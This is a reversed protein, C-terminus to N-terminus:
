TFDSVKCLLCGDEAVLRINKAKEKEMRKQMRRREARSLGDSSQKVAIQTHLMPEVMFDQGPEQAQEFKRCQQMDLEGMRREVVARVEESVDGIVGEHIPRLIAMLVAQNAARLRDCSFQALYTHTIQEAHHGLAQSVLSVEVGNHYATTAWTHRPVYSSLHESLGLHRALEGLQRNHRRLASQYQTYGEKGFLTIFPLLYPSSAPDAVESMFRDLIVRAEELVCVSVVSGTKRRRYSLMDEQLDARRLHLLDVFPMGQLYFSLMFLDRCRALRPVGSLDAGCLRAVTRDSLARKRTPISGTFVDDFLGPVFRVEGGSVASAYISRLASLYFASTNRSLGCGLLYREFRILFSRTFVMELSPSVGGSFLRLRYLVSRRIGGMRFHGGCLDSFCLRDVYDVVSISTSLM